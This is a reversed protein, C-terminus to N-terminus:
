YPVTVFLKGNAFVELKDIYFVLKYKRQFGSVYELSKSDKFIFVAQHSAVIRKQHEQMSQKQGNIQAIKYLYSLAILSEQRKPYKTSFNQFEQAALPYNNQLFYYEGLDLQATPTKPFDPYVDVLMRFNIFALDMQGQKALEVAKGWLIDADAANTVPVSGLCQWSLILIIVALRM